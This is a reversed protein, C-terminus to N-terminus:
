KILYCRTLYVDGLIGLDKDGDGIGKCIGKVEIIDGPKSTVVDNINDFTCNVYAGDEATKIQVITQNQLNKAASYMEGKVQLVKEFYKAKSAVTDKTYDTYLELSTIKLSDANKIDVAGKNWQYFAFVVGTLVIFLITIVILKKM